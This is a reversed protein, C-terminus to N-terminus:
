LVLYLFNAKRLHGTNGKNIEKVYGLNQCSVMSNNNKDLRQIKICTYLTYRVHICHIDQMCVIYIKCTYLTYRAHMCHRDEHIYHIDQMYVIYVKYTYLATSM